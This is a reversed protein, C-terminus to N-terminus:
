QRAGEDVASVALPTQCTRAGCRVRRVSSRVAYPEGLEELQQYASWDRRRLPTTRGEGECTRCRRGAPASAGCLACPAFSWGRKAYNWRDYGNLGRTADVVPLPVPEVPGVPARGAERLGACTAPDGHSCWQAAEELTFGARVWDDLREVRVGHRALEWATAGTVGAAYWGALRVTVGAASWLLDPVSTGKRAGNWRFGAGAGWTRRRCSSMTTDGLATAVDQLLEDPVAHTLCVSSGADRELLCTAGSRGLLLRHRRRVLWSTIDGDLLWQTAGALTLPEDLPESGWGDAIRVVALPAVARPDLGSRGPHSWLLRSHRPAPLVQRVGCAPLQARYAPFLADPASVPVYGRRRLDLEHELRTAEPPDIVSLQVLREPHEQPAGDRREAQKGADTSGSRSKGQLM